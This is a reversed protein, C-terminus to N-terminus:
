KKLSDYLKKVMGVFQEDNVWLKQQMEKFSSETNNLWIYYDDFRFVADILYGSQEKAIIWENNLLCQKSIVNEIFLNFDAIKLQKIEELKQEDMKYENDCKKRACFYYIPIIKDNLYKIIFIENVIRENYIKEFDQIFDTLKAWINISELYKDQTFFAGKM